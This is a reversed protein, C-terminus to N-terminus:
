YINNVAIEEAEEWPIMANILKFSEFSDIMEAYISQAKLIGKVLLSERRVGALLPSDPTFWENGKRFIINCYSTDTILGKRVMLVDDCDGKLSYLNNIQLRDSYKVHYDIMDCPVMKLTAIRRQQYPIFEPTAPTVGYLLRCKFLGSTPFNFNHLYAALSFYANTRGFLMGQAQKMRTEHYTILDFHGDALRISEFLPYNNM